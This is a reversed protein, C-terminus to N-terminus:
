KENTIINELLDLAESPTSAKHIIDERKGDLRTGALKGSWGEIDLAIIPRGKQWSFAMESLTGSGGGIAIVADANTVIMNRGIGIGTPIVIDAYESSDAMETGPIIGITDGERYDPSSRAGKMAAEMVGGLGGTMVRYGLDIIGEGVEFAYRYAPSNEMISGNGIVAIIRRRENMVTLPHQFIIITGTRPQRLHTCMQYVPQSFHFFFTTVQYSTAGDTYISQPKSNFNHEM